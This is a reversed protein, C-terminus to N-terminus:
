HISYPSGTTTLLFEWTSRARGLLPVDHPGCPPHSYPDWHPWSLRKAWCNLGKNKLSAESNWPGIRQVDGYIGQIERMKGCNGHNGHNGHCELRVRRPRHHLDGLHLGLRRERRLFRHHGGHPGARGRPAAGVQPRRGLHLGRSGQRHRPEVPPSTKPQIPVTNKYSSADFHECFMHLVHSFSQNEWMIGSKQPSLVHCLPISMNLEVIVDWISTWGGLILYVRQSFGLCILLATTESTPDPYKRYVALSHAWGNIMWDDM